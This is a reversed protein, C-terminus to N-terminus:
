PRGPGAPVAAGVGPRAAACRLRRAVRRRWPSLFGALRGNDTFLQGSLRNGKRKEWLWHLANEVLPLAGPEDRADDM